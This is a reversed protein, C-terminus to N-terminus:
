FAGQSSLFTSICLIYAYSNAHGVKHIVWVYHDLTYTNRYGPWYLGAHAKWCMLQCSFFLDLRCVMFSAKSYDLCVMNTM